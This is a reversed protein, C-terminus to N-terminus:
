DGEWYALFTRKRLTEDAEGWPMRWGLVLARRRVIGHIAAQRDLERGRTADLGRGLIGPRYGHRNYYRALWRKGEPTPILICRCNYM